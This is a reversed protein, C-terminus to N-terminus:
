SRRPSFSTTVAFSDGRVLTERWEIPHGDARGCREIFFAAAGVACELAHAQAADVAIATLTEQGGDLTIGCRLTLEQYLATNSFDVDLLAAARDAPLWARDTAIVNDDAFRRREVIVLQAEAPLELRQAIRGDVCLERRTVESRQSMGSAEVAAFLSYIPGFSNEDGHNIRVVPRKGRDASVLGDRRLPDLALRVTSRSVQYETSLRLEGPFSDAFEGVAIRRLVDDHVRRWLPRDPKDVPGSRVQEAATLAQSAGRPPHPEAREAM